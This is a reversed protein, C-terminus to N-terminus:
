PDTLEFPAIQARPFRTDHGEIEGGELYPSLYCHYFSFAKVPFMFLQLEACGKIVYPNHETRLKLGQFYLIKDIDVLSICPM